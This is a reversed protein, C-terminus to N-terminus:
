EVPAMAKIMELVKRRLRPQALRQPQRELLHVSLRWRAVTKLAPTM